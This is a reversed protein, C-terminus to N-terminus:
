VLAAVELARTCTRSLFAGACIPEGLGGCDQCQMTFANGDLDTGAAPVCSLSPFRCQAGTSDADCCRWSPEGCSAVCIGEAVGPNGSSAVDSGGIACGTDDCPPDGLGGCVVDARNLARKIGLVAHVSYAGGASTAALRGSWLQLLCMCSPSIAKALNSVHEPGQWSATVSRIVPPAGPRVSVTYTCTESPTGALQCRVRTNRAQTDGARPVQVPSARRATELM